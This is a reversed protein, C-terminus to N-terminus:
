DIAVNEVRIVDNNILPSVAVPDGGSKNIREHGAHEGVSIGYAVLTLM